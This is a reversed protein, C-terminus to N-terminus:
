RRVAVGSLISRLEDITKASLPEGALEDAIQKILREREHRTAVAKQAREERFKPDALRGTFQKPTDNL